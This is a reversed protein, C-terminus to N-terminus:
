LTRVATRTCLEEEKPQVKLVLLVNRKQERFRVALVRISLFYTCEDHLVVWVVKRDIDDFLARDETTLDYLETFKLPHVLRLKAEDGGGGIVVYNIDRQEKRGGEQVIGPGLARGLQNRHLLIKAQALTMISEGSKAEVEM